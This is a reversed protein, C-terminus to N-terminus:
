LLAGLLFLWIKANGSAKVLEGLAQLNLGESLNPTEATVYVNGKQNSSNCSMLLTSCTFLILLKKM